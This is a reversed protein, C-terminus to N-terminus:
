IQSVNKIHKRYRTFVRARSIFGIYKGKEIVALNYRGSTEFKQAVIEMNDEPDIHYRPMYMLDEIKVSDYLEQKFIIDRVDDMKVMGVMVGKEDVVPFLNRHNRSIADTLDRLSADPSLVEFDTEIMRKVEMLQLVNADKDHTLLEKRQALQIHYVSNPTFARVILYSFTATVMLPVFLQYGGSIDAILFIGTLPAHLVGAILGAMGILAFNNTSIERIGLRNIILAFLMGTNVGMFLTPAFIGGVGGAGFTFSTAVIKLLIVAALLIFAAWIQEHLSFFLSNEFLYNLNGALCENISEYGEGYLSPFFFILVGLGVGGVILRIKNNKFKQFIDGWFLYMKTFYVSVFGAVIGLLIYFPLDALEFSNVVKFPYLADQGLFFYSTVVATASSLLLPVLSFVTLDIMIVEVAFVIAAIPAKFIAAMAGACACGLMLITNRYNLRFVSALWSGWATGTAVTPGELGVSGGFGVTLSATLVSSYLNHRSVRGKRKSISHLVNPIGHRVESGIVYRIALIAIFIGIIPLAFYIFNEVKSSVLIHVLKETIRVTHKIIVAALGALIGIIISLVTIFARESFHKLRWRHLRVLIHQNKSGM